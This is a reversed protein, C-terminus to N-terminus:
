YPNNAPKPNSATHVHPHQTAAKAPQEGYLFGGGTMQGDTQMHVHDFAFHKVYEEFAPLPMVGSKHAHHSHPLHEIKELHYLAEAIMNIEHVEKDTFVHNPNSAAEVEFKHLEETLKNIIATM